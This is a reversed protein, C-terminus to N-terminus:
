LTGMTAILLMYFVPACVIVLLVVIVLELEDDSM